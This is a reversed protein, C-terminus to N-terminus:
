LLFAQWAMCGQFTAQPMPDFDWRGAVALLGSTISGGTAV